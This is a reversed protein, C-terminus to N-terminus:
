RGPFRYPIQDTDLPLLLKDPAAHDYPITPFNTVVADRTGLNRLAHWVGAPINMLRRRHESLVVRSVEGSTEVGERDDYLIVEVEGFMVCYRDEHRQHMGWGKIRGPRITFCYAFVLPDPHWGWRLDYMEFVTGRDDAHTAIDRFGMGVPLRAVPVGTSTVTQRDRESGSITM